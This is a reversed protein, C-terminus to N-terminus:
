AKATNEAHYNCTPAPDWIAPGYDPPASQGMSVATPMRVLATPPVRFTEGHRNTAEFGAALRDYVEDAFLLCSEADLGAYRVIAAEWAEIGAARDLGTEDAYADLVAAAGRINLAPNIKLREADAGILQAALILSDGGWENDRLAMLGYGGEITAASGRDEFGSGMRALVLLLKEPVGYEASAQEFLPKLPGFPPTEARIESPICALVSYTAVLITLSRPSCMM